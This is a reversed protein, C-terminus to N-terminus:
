FKYRNGTTHVGEENLFPLTEPQYQVQFVISKGSEFESLFRDLECGQHSVKRFDECYVEFEYLLYEDIHAFCLVQYLLYRITLGNFNNDESLELRGLELSSEINIM